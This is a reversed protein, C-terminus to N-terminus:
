LRWRRGGRRRVGAAGEVGECRRGGRCGVGAAGEVGWM